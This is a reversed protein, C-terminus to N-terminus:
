FFLNWPHDEAPPHYINLFGASKLNPGPNRLSFQILMLLQLFTEPGACNCKCCIVAISFKREKWHNRGSERLVSGTWNLYTDSPPLSFPRRSTACCLRCGSCPEWEAACTSAGSGQPSASSEEISGRDSACEVHLVSQKQQIEPFGM